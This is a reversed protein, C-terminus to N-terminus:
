IQLDGNQQLQSEHGKSVVVLLPGIRGSPKRTRSRVFVILWSRVRETRQGITKRFGSLNIELWLMNKSKVHERTVDLWPSGVRNARTCSFLSSRGEVRERARPVSNPLVGRSEMETISETCYEEKRNASGQSVPYGHCKRAPYDPTSYACRATVCLPDVTPAAVDHLIVASRALTMTFDSKSEIDRIIWFSRIIYTKWIKRLWKKKLKRPEVTQWHSLYM